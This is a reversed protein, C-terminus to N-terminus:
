NLQEGTSRNTTTHSLNAFFWNHAGPEDAGTLKNANSTSNDHVTTGWVFKAGGVGAKIKSIRTTYSDASQWETLIAELAVDNALSSTDYDTYGAILIDNGSGGTVTDKGTGGILISRGSGGTITNTGSGGILINGQSNGILTNSGGGQGGRVNRINSIGGALGGDIGTATNTALNVTVATTYASYDLWNNGGGGNIKGSITKGASFVFVDEASGGTLNGIASFSLGAVTGANNNTISWVTNSNPGILQNGTSSSGVLSQINSFGGTRTATDSALNVTAAAGGDSAYNLTNTGGGGNIKGLVSGGSDFVFTDNGTGGTLNEIASFSLGAVTGANAGTLTWTETANPGILQDATSSSGVLAQINSFGGTRTATDSALNVTVAAGGDSAYNLTNTGTGGNIKGSVSGGSDFVFTDNGTGGTLNEVASFSFSGVTGANAGTLTWTNTSNPGVLQDATSSSGVLAQINSFGGTRTATDNALNVTIAAGGDGSYNLTNTGAGGNIKGSVSGGSAFAFTDNGTGGTLNAVGSFSVVGLSGSNSGTINWTNTANPGVLTDKGSGFVVLKGTTGVDNVTNSGGGTSLYTDYYLNSTNYVNFTNGHADGYVVVYTVGGTSSASPAWYVPASLGLGTLEGDYLNATRGTTDATDVVTLTSYGGSGSNYADVLGHIGATSGVGVDVLQYSSEGDVYLAGSTGYVEVYNTVSTGGSGSGIYTDDYFNSTGHVYFTNGGSGGFVGLYVVGGTASASPSWYIPASTGLGTLEGDYMNATQGNSDSSDDVYLYSYGGSGSNYVDVWGLIGATSGVGVDVSQYSSEGDIDLPGSTGYVDVYNSVSTGGSGTGIYTGGWLDGNNQVSFTNGGSGGYIALYEVGGTYTGSTNDLWDIQAPALGFISGRHVGGGLNDDYMTASRGVTDAADNITLTSYGTSSPTPYGNYVYVLSNIGQVGDYSNGITVNDIGDGGNIYVSCNSPVNNVQITNTGTGPLVNVTTIQVGPEFAFTQGNLTVEVGGAGTTDLTISDNYGSGFQDGYIDLTSGTYTYKGNSYSYSAYLDLHQSNGDSVTFAQANNDWMAQVLVGDVRYEDLNFDEPEFDGIEGSGGGPLSAGANCTVGSFPQADTMAESSEHSFVSTITDLNSLSGGLGGIDFPQGVWGYVLNYNGYNTSANFDFHYGVVTRDGGNTDNPISSADVYTGYPTIVMYLPTSTFNSPPLIPSNTDNIANVIENTLDSDTFTSPPDGHDTDVWWNALYPSAGAGYQSLHQYAPSSLLTSIANAITSASAGSPNSWYTSGWFILEVPTNNLKEGGGDSTAEAGFYPHFIVTPTVRAELDEVLPRRRPARGAHLTRTSRNRGRIRDILTMIGGRILLNFTEALLRLTEEVEWARRV